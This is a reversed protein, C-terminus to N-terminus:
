ERLRSILRSLLKETSPYSPPGLGQLDENVDMAPSAAAESRCPM